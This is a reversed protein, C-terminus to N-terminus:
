LERGFYWSDIGPGREDFAVRILEFGHRRNLAIM